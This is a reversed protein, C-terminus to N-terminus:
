PEIVPDPVSKQVTVSVPAAGTPPATTFRDLLLAATNTGAVTVTGMFAFLALNM